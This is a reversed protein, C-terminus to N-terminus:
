PAGGSFVIDGSESSNDVIMEPPLTDDVELLVEGNEKARAEREIRRRGGELLRDFSRGDTPILIGVRKEWRRIDNALGPYNEQLAVAQKGCQGPCCWCATRVFGRSYGEWIPLQERRLIEEEQEKALYFCPAFHQYKELYQLQSFQTKKSGRVAETARTGTLVIVKAPDFTEKIWDSTPMYVFKQACPLYLRSPWGHHKIWTWWELKSKVIMVEAGLTEAVDDVHAGMGPFEVGPDAFVLFLKRSGINRKAWLAAVSSDKGGSFVVVLNECAALQEEIATPVTYFDDLSIDNPSICSAGPRFGKKKEGSYGAALLGANDWGIINLTDPASIKLDGLMPLLIEGDWGGLEVLRNDAILYAEAEAQNAFNAGFVVPVLWEGTKADAQVRAPPPAAPAAERMQRLAALRGHGAVLRGSASDMLLPAVFGFRRLSAQLLPLDHRKPNREAEQISSMPVYQIQLNPVTDM